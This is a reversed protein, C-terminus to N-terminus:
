ERGLDTQAAARSIRRAALRAGRAHPAGGNAAVGAISRGGRVRRSPGVGVERRAEGARTARPLDERQARVRRRALVLGERLAELLQEVFARHLPQALAAVVERRARAGHRDERRHARQLELHHLHARAAAARAARGSDVRGGHRSRWPRAVAAVAACRRRPAVLCGHQRGAQLM